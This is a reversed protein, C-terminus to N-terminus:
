SRKPSSESSGLYCLFIGISHLCKSLVKSLPSICPVNLFVAWKKETCANLVSLNMYWGGVRCQETLRIKYLEWLSVAVTCECIEFWLLCLTIKSIQGPSALCRAPYRVLWHFLQEKFVAEWLLEPYTLLVSVCDLNGASTADVSHFQDHQFKALGNPILVRFISLFGCLVANLSSGDFWGWFLQLARGKKGNVLHSVHKQIVSARGQLGAKWM